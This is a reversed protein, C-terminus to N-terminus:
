LASLRCPCSALQAIHRADHFNATLDRQTADFDRRADALQRLAQLRTADRTYDIYCGRQVSGPKEKNEEVVELSAGKTQKPISAQHDALSRQVQAVAYSEGRMFSTTRTCYIPSRARSSSRSSWAASYVLPKISSKSHSPKGIGCSCFGISFDPKMSHTHCTSLSLTRVEGM